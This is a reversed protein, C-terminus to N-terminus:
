SLNYPCLGVIYKLSNYEQTSLFSGSPVAEVRCPKLLLYDEEKRKRRGKGEMKKGRWGVV